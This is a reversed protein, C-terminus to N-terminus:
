SLNDLFEKKLQEAYEGAFSGDALKGIAENRLRTWSFEEKGVLIPYFLVGSKEAAVLDGPADGVMLVREKDYRGIRILEAICFAKSGCGQGLLANIYGDLGCRHWESKLAEGNASSVVSIDAVASLAELAEKVGPYAGHDEPLAAIAENVMKSWRLALRLQPDNNKEIEAALAPNSLEKAERTWLELRDYVEKLECIGRTEVAKLTEVLALFRNIGRSMSYLNIEDWVAQVAESYADLGYCEIMKPGFCSKHKIDMTDMACGDSDVCLLLDKHKTWKELSNMYSYRVCRVHM